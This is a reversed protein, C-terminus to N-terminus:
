LNKYYKSDPFHTLFTSKGIGPSGPIAILPNCSKDESGKKRKNQRASMYKVVENCEYERPIYQFYEYVLLKERDLSYEYM